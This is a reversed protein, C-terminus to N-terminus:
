RQLSQSVRGNEHLDQSLVFYKSIQKLSKWQSFIHVSKTYFVTILLNATQDGLTQVRVAPINNYLDIIKLINKSYM